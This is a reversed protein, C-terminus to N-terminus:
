VQSTLSSLTESILKAALKSTSAISELERRNSKPLNLILMCMDAEVITQLIIIEKLTLKGELTPGLM